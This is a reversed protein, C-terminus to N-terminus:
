SRYYGIVYKIVKIRKDDRDYILVHGWDIGNQGIEIRVAHQGTGDELYEVACVGVQLEQPLSNIYARYDASIMDFDKPDQSWCRTWGSLPDPAPKPAACGVVWVFAVLLACFILRTVSM